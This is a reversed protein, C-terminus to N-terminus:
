KDNVAGKSPKRTTAQFGATQLAGLQRLFDGFATNSVTANGLGSLAQASEQQWAQIAEHLGSAFRTQGSIAIQAVAQADGFRQQLQRWFAEAPLTALAQWDQTQLLQQVEAGSEAIGDGFARNGLELWQQGGEQLLKGIRLYFEINAKHLALPLNSDISM